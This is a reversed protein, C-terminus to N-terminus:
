RTPDSDITPLIVTPFQGQDDPRIPSAAFDDVPWNLRLGHGNGIAEELLEPVTIAEGQGYFRHLPRDSKHRPPRPRTQQSIKLARRRQRRHHSSAALYGITAALTVAAALIATQAM